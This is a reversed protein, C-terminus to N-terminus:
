VGKVILCIYILCIYKCKNVVNIFNLCKLENKKIIVKYIM